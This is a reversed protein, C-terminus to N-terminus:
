KKRAALKALRAARAKKMCACRMEYWTQYSTKKTAIPRKLLLLGQMAENELSSPMKNDNM